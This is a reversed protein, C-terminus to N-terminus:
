IEKNGIYFCATAAPTALLEVLDDVDIFTIRYPGFPNVLIVNDGSGWLVYGTFPVSGKVYYRVVSYEPVVGASVV